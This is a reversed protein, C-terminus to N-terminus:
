EGKLTARINLIPLIADDWKTTHTSPSPQQWMPQQQHQVVSDAKCTNYQVVSFSSLLSIKFTVLAFVTSEQHLIREGDSANRINKYATKSTYILLIKPLCNFRSYMSHNTLRYKTYIWRTWM